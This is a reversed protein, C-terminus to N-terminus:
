WPLHLGSLHMSRLCSPTRSSIHFKVVIPHFIRSSYQLLSPVQKHVCTVAWLKLLAHPPKLQLDRHTWPSTFCFVWVFYSFLLLEEFFFSFCVFFFWFFGLLTSALPHLYTTITTAVPLNVASTSTFQPLPSTHSNLLTESNFSRSPPLTESCAQVQSPPGPRPASAPGPRPSAPGPVPVSALHRGSTPSGPWLGQFDQSRSAAALHFNGGGRQRRPTHRGVLWGIPAATYSPRGGM